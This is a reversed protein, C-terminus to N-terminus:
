EGPPAVREGRRDVVRHEDGAEAMHQRDGAVVHRHHRAHYEEGHARQQRQRGRERGAEGDLFPRGGSGKDRRQEIEQQGARLHRRLAREEHRRHYQERHHGVPLRDGEARQRERRHDHERERRFRQHM